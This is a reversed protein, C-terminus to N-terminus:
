VLNWCGWSIDADTVVFLSAAASGGSWTCSPRESEVGTHPNGGISRGQVLEPPVSALVTM